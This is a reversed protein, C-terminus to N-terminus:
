EVEGAISANSPGALNSDNAYAKIILHGSQPSTTTVPGSHSTRCSLLVAIVLFVAFALLWAFVVLASWIMLNNDRGLPILM